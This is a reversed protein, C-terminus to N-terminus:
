AAAVCDLSRGSPSVELVRRTLAAWPGATAYTARAGRNRKEEDLRFRAFNLTNDEQAVVNITFTSEGRCWCQEEREVVGSKM